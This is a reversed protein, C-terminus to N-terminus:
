APLQLCSRHLMRLSPSSASLPPLGVVLYQIIQLAMLASFAKGVMGFGSVVRQWRTPQGLEDSATNIQRVQRDVEQLRTRADNLRQTANVFAQTGPVLGKLDRNLQGVLNNLQGYTLKTLDVEKRVKAMEANTATLEARYKKWEESGKGAGTKEIEKLTKNLEKSKTELLTIENSFDRTNARLTLTAEENLNMAM